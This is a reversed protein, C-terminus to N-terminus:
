SGARALAQSTRSEPLVALTNPDHLLERLNPVLFGYERGEADRWWLRAASEGVRAFPGELGDREAIRAMRDVADTREAGVAAQSRVAGSPLAYLARLTADSFPDGSLLQRGVRQVVEVERVMVTDGRRAHGEFGLAHGLEHLATGALEAPTIARSHEQWDPNTHRAIRISATTLEARISGSVQQSLPALRCDAVTNATDLGAGTRVPGEELAILIAAREVAVESFHVGLGAHEWARLAAELAAREEPSADPPLAVPIPAETSWRCLFLVLEGRSPLLFPHADGLRQGDISRLAPYRAALEGSGGACAAAILVLAAAGIRRLGPRHRAQAL